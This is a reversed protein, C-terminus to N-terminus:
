GAPYRPSGCRMDAEAQGIGFAALGSAALVQWKTAQGSFNADHFPETSPTAPCAVIKIHPYAGSVSTTVWEPLLNTSAGM